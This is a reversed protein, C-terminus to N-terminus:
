IDRKRITVRWPYIFLDIIPLHITFCWTTTLAPDNTFSILRTDFDRM